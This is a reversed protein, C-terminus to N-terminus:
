KVDDLISQVFQKRNEPALALAKEITRIGTKKKGASFRAQGLGLNMVWNDKGFKEVSNMFFEEALESLESELLFLGFFYVEGLDGRLASLEEIISALEEKRNLALLLRAKTSLNTFNKNAAFGTYGGNISRNAWDLGEELNVNKDYCWRAADNWAEWRYTNIGLLEYRFNALVTETLDVSVTFPIRKEGWELAILVSSDTRNIFRYDLQESFTTPVPTVDVKLTVHEEKDLYYSGWQNDHHAFLLTWPGEESTVIHFGYSGAKLVKGDIRVDTTFRIRTNINAGARWALNPDGYSAVVDKWVDRGRVAPSHYDITIDTIGLRQTEVVKISPRPIKVTHFQGTCLAPIAVLMINSFLKRM